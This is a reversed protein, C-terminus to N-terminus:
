PIQKVIEMLEEMLNENVDLEAHTKDNLERKIMYDIMRSQELDQLRGEKQFTKPRNLWINVNDYYVFQKRVMSKFEELAPWPDVNYLKRNIDPYVASLIIPSDSIVWDVKGDLIQLMGLQKAYIYEQRTMMNVLRDEYLLSKAYEHILEVNYGAVKMHFFLGAANASKGSGPGGFLNIVKM